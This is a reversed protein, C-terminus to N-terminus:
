IEGGPESHVPCVSSTYANVCTCIPEEAGDLLAAAKANFYRAIEVLQYDKYKVPQHYLAHLADIRGRGHKAIMYDTLPLPDGEHNINCGGCQAAANLPNWRTSYATRSFLHGCQLNYDTECGKVAMHTVCRKDRAVIYKGFARDAAKVLGKRTM